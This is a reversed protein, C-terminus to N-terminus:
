SLAANIDPKKAFNSALFARVFPRTCSYKDSAQDFEIIEQNGTQVVPREKEDKYFIITESSKAQRSTILFKYKIFNAEKSCIESKQILFSMQKKPDNEQVFPFCEKCVGNHEKHINDIDDCEVVITEQNKLLFNIDHRKFWCLAAASCTGLIGLATLAKKKFSRNHKNQGAKLDDNLEPPQLNLSSCFLSLSLLSFIKKNM